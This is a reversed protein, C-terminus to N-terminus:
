KQDNNRLSQKISTLVRLLKDENEQPGHFVITKKKERKTSLPEWFYIFLLVGWKLWPRRTKEKYCGPHTITPSDHNEPYANTFLMRPTNWYCKSNQPFTSFHGAKNGACGLLTPNSCKLPPYTKKLPRPVTRKNFDFWLSRNGAVLLYTRRWSIRRNHRRM